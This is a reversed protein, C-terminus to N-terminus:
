HRQPLGYTGNDCLEILGDDILGDLARRRQKTDPWADHLARTAVPEATDRLLAMIRGRAQRDTGHWAQPRRAPANSPMGAQRWACTKRLPCADCRPARAVCILAGLEMVAVSWRAHENGAPLLDDALKREAKTLSAAPHRLGNVARAFVRRVNTDLVTHRHGFAFSAVAAATYEGIGPLALLTAYDDPVQGNHHRVIAIAAQHLRLARRPYGLRGWARIVEHPQASAHDAPTPWRTMWERWVPEVRSVPTQQLMVESVLVGWPTRDPSRWPLDRASIDYWALVTAHM